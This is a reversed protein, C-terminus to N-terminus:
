RLRCNIKFVTRAKYQYNQQFQKSRHEAIKHKLGNVSKKDILYPSLHGFDTTARIKEMMQIRNPRMMIAIKTAFM